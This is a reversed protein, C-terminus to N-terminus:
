IMSPCYLEFVIMIRTFELLLQSCLHAQLVHEYQWKPKGQSVHSHSRSSTIDHSCKFSPLPFSCFVSLFFSYFVSSSFFLFVCLLLPSFLSLNSGLAVAMEGGPKGAVMEAVAFSLSCAGGSWTIKEEEKTGTKTNMKM